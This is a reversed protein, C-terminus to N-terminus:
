AWSSATPPSIARTSADAPRRCRAPPRHLARQPRHDTMNERARGSPARRLLGLRCSQPARTAARGLLRPRRRTRQCPRSGRLPCSGPNRTVWWPSSPPICPRTTWPRAAHRRHRRGLRPVRRPPAVLPMLTGQGVPAEDPSGGCGSRTSPTSSRPSACRGTPGCSRSSRAAWGGRAQRKLNQLCQRTQAEIDSSRCRAADRSRGPGGLLHLGHRRRGGRPWPRGESAAPARPESGAASAWRPSAAAAGAAHPGRAPHRVRRAAARHRADTFAPM